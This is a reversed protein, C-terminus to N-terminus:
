LSLTGWSPRGFGEAKSRLEAASGKAGTPCLILEFLYWHLFLKSIMTLCICFQVVSRPSRLKKISYSRSPNIALTSIKRCSSFHKKWTCVFLKAVHMFYIADAFLFVFSQTPSCFSSAHCYRLRKQSVVLPLKTWTLPLFCRTSSLRRGRWATPWPRCSGRWRHSRCIPKISCGSLLRVTRRTSSRTTWNFSHSLCVHLCINVFLVFCQAIMCHM